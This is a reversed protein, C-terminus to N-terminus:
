ETKQLLIRIRATQMGATEIRAERPTTAVRRGRSPEFSVMQETSDMNYDVPLRTCKGDSGGSESNRSAGHIQQQEGLIINLYVELADQQDSKQNAGYNETDNAQDDKPIESADPKLRFRATGVDRHSAQDTHVKAL